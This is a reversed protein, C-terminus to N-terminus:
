VRLAIARPCWSIASLVTSNTLVIFARSNENEDNRFSSTFCSKSVTPRYEKSGCLEVRQNRKDWSQVLLLFDCRLRQLLDLVTRRRKRKKGKEKEEELVGM